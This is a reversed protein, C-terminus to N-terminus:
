CPAPCPLSRITREATTGVFANRPVQSRHPGIVLLGPWAKAAAKITLPLPDDLLIQTSCTVGDMEKLTRARDALLKRAYAADHDVIRHPQDDDVVHVLYLSAGHPRAIIVARRL